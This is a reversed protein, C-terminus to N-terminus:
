FSGSSVCLLLLPSPLRGGGPVHPLAAPPADCPRGQCVGFRLRPLSFVAVRYSDPRRSGGSPVDGLGTPSIILVTRLSPPGSAVSCLIAVRPPPSLIPRRRHPLRLFRGWPSSGGTLLGAFKIFLGNTYIPIHPLSDMLHFPHAPRSPYPVAPHSPPGM